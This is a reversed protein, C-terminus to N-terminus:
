ARAALEFWVDSSPACVGWRSALADVIRLGLGGEGLPRSDALEVHALGRDSVYGRVDGAPTVDIWVEVVDGTGHVVSNNVLESVVTRLDVLLPAPLRDGFGDVLQRVQHGAEPRRQLSAQARPMGALQWPQSGYEM